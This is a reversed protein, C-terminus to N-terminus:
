WRASFPQRARIRVLVLPTLARCAGTVGRPLSFPPGGPYDERNLPNFTRQMVKISAPRFQHERCSDCGTSACPWWRSARSTTDQHSGAFAQVIRASLHPRWGTTIRRSQKVFSIRLSSRPPTSHGASGFSFPRLSASRATVALRLRTASEPAAGSVAPKHFGSSRQSSQPARVRFQVSSIRKGLSRM